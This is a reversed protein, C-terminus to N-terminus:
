EVSSFRGSWPAANKESSDAEGVGNHLVGIEVGVGVPAVVYAWLVLLRSRLWLWGLVWMSNRLWCTGRYRGDGSREVGDTALM